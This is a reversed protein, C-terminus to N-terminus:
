IRKLKSKVLDCAKKHGKLADEHSTYREQYNDLDPQETWFIMTEWLVPVSSGIFGHDLALFVTSVLCKDNDFRDQKTIRRNEKGAQGTWKEYEEFTAPVPRNDKDLIYWM